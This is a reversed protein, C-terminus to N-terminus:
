KRKAKITTKGNKIISIGKYELSTKRGSLDFTEEQTNLSTALKEGIGLSAPLTVCCEASKYSLASGDTAQIRLGYTEGPTLGSFTMEEKGNSKVGDYDEVPLRLMTHCDTTVDDIAVFGATRELRIRMKEAGDAVVSITNATTPADIAKVETWGNGYDAEFHLKNGAKSSRVWMSLGDIKAEPFAVILWDGDSSLRLAPATNGYYGNVSYYTQSSTNWLEPMGNYKESFDYGM